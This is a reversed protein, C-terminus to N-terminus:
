GTQGTIRQILLFLGLLSTVAVVTLVIIGSATAFILYFLRSLDVLRIWTRLALISAVILGRLNKASSVSNQSSLDNASTDGIQRDPGYADVPESHKSGGNLAEHGSGAALALESDLSSIQYPENQIPTQRNEYEAFIRVAELSSSVELRRRAAELHKRVTFEGIGLDNAIEKPQRYAALARLIERQRNSLSQLKSTSPM